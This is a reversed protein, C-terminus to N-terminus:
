WNTWFMTENNFQKRSRLSLYFLFSFNFVLIFGFFLVIIVFFFFVLCNFPFDKSKKIGNKCTVDNGESGYPYMCQNILRFYVSNLCFVLHTVQVMTLKIKFNLKDWHTLHYLSKFTENIFFSPVFQYSWICFSPLTKM